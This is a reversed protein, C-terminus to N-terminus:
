IIRIIYNCVITPQVNNHASGKTATTGQTTASIANANNTSTITGIPVPGSVGNRGAGWIGFSSSGHTYYNGADFGSAIGGVTSTVSISNNGSATLTPIEAPLLEHKENGGVAGIQASNGGFHTATLRTAGAEKMASVRGTKDPLNFTTSGDGVGYTTGILAFLTAYTTRSIGQGTPFVFASNPATTGWYDMGAGLPIMYPRADFSHLLWEDSGLRYTAQYLSGSILSGALLDVGTLFRLPKATNGDVSLTVAGTNTVGPTFQVTFGNTNSTIVQNSSITYAAGSGGTTAIGTIDDRWKATAAMMARASNNISSPSQGEAWNITSDASADAAATQSWKYLTM